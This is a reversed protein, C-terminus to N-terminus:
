RSEARYLSRQYLSLRDCRAHIGFGQRHIGDGGYRESRQYLFTVGATRIPPSLTTYGVRDYIFGSQLYDTPGFGDQMQGTVVGNNNIAYAQAGEFNPPSIQTYAGDKYLFSNIPFGYGINGHGIVEGENNLDTATWEKLGVPLIETHAGSSYLFCSAQACSAEPCGWLLIQGKNNIRLPRYDPFDLITYTYRLCTSNDSADALSAVFSPSSTIVLFGAALFTLPM